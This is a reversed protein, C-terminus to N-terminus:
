ADNAEVLLYNSEYDVTCLNSGYALYFYGSEGFDEGWSNRVTYWSDTGNETFGVIQSCHDPVGSCSTVVGSSYDLIDEAAYCVSIPGTAQVYNKMDEETSLTYYGVPTVVADGTPDRCADTEASTGNYASELMESGDGYDTALVMGSNEWLWLWGWEPNGGLCGLDYSDCDLLYEASFWDDIDTIGAAISDTELQETAAIAWCGGCYGQDQIYTTALSGTWDVESSAGMVKEPTKSLVKMGASQLKAMRAEKGDAKYSLLASKEEASIDSFKNIGYTAGKGMETTAVNKIHTKMVNDVFLLYKAQLVTSENSHTAYEKKEVIAYTLFSSWLYDEDTGKMKAEHLDEASFGYREVDSMSKRIVKGDSGMLSQRQKAAVNKMSAKSGYMTAKTTASGSAALNMDSNDVSGLSTGSTIYAFMGLLGLLVVSALGLTRGKLVNSSRENAERQDYSGSREQYGASDGFFPHDEDDPNTGYSSM